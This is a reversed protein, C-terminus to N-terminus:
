WKLDTPVRVELEIAFTKSLFKQSKLAQGYGPVYFSSFTGQGKEIPVNDLDPVVYGIAFRVTDCRIVQWNGRYHSPAFYPRYYTLPLRCVLNQGDTAKARIQTMYPIEPAEVKVNPPPPILCKKVEATKASSVEVYVINSDVTRNGGADTTFLHSFFYLPHELHNKISFNIVLANEIVKMSVDFLIKEDM